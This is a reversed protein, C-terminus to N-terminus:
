KGAAPTSRVPTCVGNACVFQTTTTPKTAPKM